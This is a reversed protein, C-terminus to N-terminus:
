MVLQLPGGITRTLLAPTFRSPRVTFYRRASKSRMRSTFTVPEKRQERAASEPMIRARQPLITITDDTRPKRPFAPCAAYEAELLASSPRALDSARSYPLLPM